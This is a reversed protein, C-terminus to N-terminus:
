FTWSNNSLSNNRGRFNANCFAMRLMRITYPVHLFCLPFLFDLALFRSCSLKLLRWILLRNKAQNPKPACVFRKPVLEVEMVFASILTEMHKFDNPRIVLLFLLGCKRTITGFCSVTYKLFLCFAPARLVRKIHIGPRLNLIEVM